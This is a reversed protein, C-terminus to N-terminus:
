HNKVRAQRAPGRPQIGGSLTPPSITSPFSDLLTRKDNLEKENSREAYNLCTQNQGRKFAVNREGEFDENVGLLSRKKPCRPGLFLSKNYLKQPIIITNHLMNVKLM